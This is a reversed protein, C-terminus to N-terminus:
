FFQLAEVGQAFAIWRVQLIKVAEDVILIGSDKDSTQTTLVYLPSAVLSMKVKCAGTSVNEAARMANKISIVGDFEFCTLEVDARIKLPQPTMRRRIDKLLAHAVIDDLSSSDVNELSRLEDIEEYLLDPTSVFM